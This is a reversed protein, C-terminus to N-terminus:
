SSAWFDYFNFWQFPHQKVLEELRQAYAAVWESLQQDRTKGREFRYAQPPDAVFAYSRPGVQVNFTVILPCGSMAALLFPGVPFAAPQGLFPVRVTRADVTRDGQMAVVYGDRLAHLIDLAALESSGVALLKPQPGTNKEILARLHAVENQFAVMAMPAKLRGDLLGAAVDYNGFHATVMVLGKGSGSADIIHEVHTEQMKFASRGAAGLVLRDVMVRAFALFHRYSRAWREFGMAPGLAKDLYQMSARRNEPAAFLFYVTIPYLWLYAFGPGFVRVVIVFFLHGWYGGRSPAGWQRKTAAYVDRISKHRLSMELLGAVFFAVALGLTAYPAAIGYRGLAALMALAFLAPLAGSGSVAGALVSWPGVVFALVPAAVRWFPGPGGLWMWRRFADGSLGPKRFRDRILPALPFPLLLRLV